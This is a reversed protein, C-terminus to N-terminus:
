HCNEFTIEGKLKLDPCDAQLSGKLLRINNVKTSTGTVTADLRRCQKELVTTVQPKAGDKGPRHIVMVVQGAADGSLRVAENEHGAVRLWVGMFGERQGSSCTDPTFTWTGLPGGESVLRGSARPKLGLGQELMDCVKAPGILIVAILAAVGSVLSLTAILRKRKRAAAAKAAKEQDHRTKEAAKEVLRRAREELKRRAPSPTGFLLFWPRVEAPKGRMRMAAEAPIRCSAGCRACTTPADTEPGALPTNCSPCTVAQPVGAPGPYVQAVPLDVQHELTLGIRLDPYVEVLAPPLEYTAQTGCGICSARFRREGEPTVTLPQRCGPCLPHGPSAGSAIAVDGFTQTKSTLLTGNVGVKRFAKVASSSEKEELANWLESGEPPARDGTLDGVLHAHSLCEKWHKASFAQDVGCNGCRVAGDLDFYNLPVEFGCSRCTFHSEFRVFILGDGRPRVELTGGTAYRSQCRGCVEEKTMAITGCGKCIRM